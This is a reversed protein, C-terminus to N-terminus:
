CIGAAHWQQVGEAEQQTIASRIRSAGDVVRPGPRSTYSNGDIVWTPARRFLELAHPDALRDLESRAREVGFGCLMILVHDPELRSVEEWDRRASHRGPRAGVDLGGAAAVLEPVWHGALYLPELWEICLVRAAPGPQSTRLRKLRHQLGFVVEEAEDNLDLATGVAHIDRWIGELDRARLSLVAPAPGLAAALRHVQGDTVACVECIDQTIVLDPVLRRLQGADIGIVPRGSQRLRRVEQDISVGPAEVDIPTTTVRPLHRISPPYDCEHSIGVLMTVDGLAAVIETAAPLLTVVRV